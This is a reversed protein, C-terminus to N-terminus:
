STTFSVNARRSAHWPILLSEAVEVLVFLVIGIASMLFLDAFLLASDVPSFFVVNAWHCDLPIM